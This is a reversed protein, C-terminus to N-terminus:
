YDLIGPAMAVSFFQKFIVYLLLVTAFTIIGANRIRGYKKLPKLKVLLLTFLVVILCSIVGNPVSSKFAAPVTGARALRMMTKTVYRFLMYVGCTVGLTGIGGLLAAKVDRKEGITTYIYELTYLVIVTLIVFGIRRLLVVYGVSVGLTLLFLQLTGKDTTKGDPRGTITIYLFGIFLFMGMVMPLVKSGPDGGYPDAVLTTNEGSFVYILYLASLVTMVAPMLKIKKMEFGVLELFM